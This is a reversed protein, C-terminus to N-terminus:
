RYEKWCYCRAMCQCETGPEPLTGISVWDLDAYDECDICHEVGPMLHRIEETYGADQKGSTLGDFYGARTHSSYLDVRMQIQEPILQGLEIQRAFKNLRDYEFQLRGGVRGWNAQTMQSRGGRGVVSMNIWGHKIERAMLSQWQDLRIKGAIFDNTIARLNSQIIKAYDDTLKMVTSDLVPRNNWKSVYQGISRDWWYGRLRAFNLINDSYNM